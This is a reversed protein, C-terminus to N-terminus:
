KIEVTKSIPLEEPLKPLKLMLIGDTYSAEIKDADIGTLDFSRSYTGYFREKKVFNPKEENEEHKREASITLMDKDISIKIDEKAFGPLESHLEYSDGADVIDTSFPKMMGKCSDEFFEDFEHMPRFYMPMRHNMPMLDFM